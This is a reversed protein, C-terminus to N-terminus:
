APRSEVLNVLSRANRQLSGLLLIASGLYLWPALGSIVAVWTGAGSAFATGALLAGVTIPVLPLCCICSAVSAFVSLLMAPTTGTRPSGPLHCEKAARNAQFGMLFTLPMLGGFALIVAADVGSLPHLSRFTMLVYFLLSTVLWLLLFGGRLWAPYFLIRLAQAVPFVSQM